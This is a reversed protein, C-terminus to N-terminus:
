RRTVWKLIKCGEFIDRSVAFNQGTAWHSAYFPMSVSGILLDSIALSAIFYNSPQRISRELVFSLIVILNGSVTLFGVCVALLGFITVHWVPFSLPRDFVVTTSRTFNAVVVL